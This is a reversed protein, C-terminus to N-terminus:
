TNGKTLEEVAAATEAAEEEADPGLGRLAAPERALNRLSRLSRRENMKILYEQMEVLPAYCLPAVKPFKPPSSAQM